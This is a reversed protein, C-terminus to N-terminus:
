TAGVSDLSPELAFPFKLRFAKRWMRIRIASDFHVRDGQSETSRAPLM